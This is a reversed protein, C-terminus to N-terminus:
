DFESEQELRAEEASWGENAYVESGYSPRTEVWNKNKWPGDWCRAARAVEIRALLYEAKARAQNKTLGQEEKPISCEGDCRSTTACDHGTAFSIIHTYRRGNRQEAVVSYRFGAIEEGDEWSRGKSFLDERVDLYLDEVEGVLIDRAEDATVKFDAM